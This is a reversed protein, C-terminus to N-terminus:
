SREFRDCIASATGFKEPPHVWVQARVGDGFEISSKTEGKGLVRVVGSLNTFAEMVPKSDKAAVLIDLDGITSRMRRLSGAPQAEVVGKVKKLEAIIEQALPYARGLPIRGSRRSLSELGTLIATESKEGMGPLDRLKGAKAAAELEALTTINLTKWILGIKKPGLGPVQLWDALSAPVEKKLKELFELKGTRLLEDIKEAIAKGVGPIEELTSEKWYENVDRGLGSLNEAAKRYALTKYIIEGKIESLNAILTFVDALERNNM